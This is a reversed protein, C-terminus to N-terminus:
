YRVTTMGFYGESTGTSFAAIAGGIGSPLYILGAQLYYLHYIEICQAALSMQLVMKVTYTVSGILIVTLNGKKFLMPIGKLPNPFYCNRRKAVNDDRDAGQKDTKRRDSTFKDFLSKHIGRSPISGNGVVKRQTEPLLLVVVILYTGTLIVLFWFIWRWGLKQALVGALVPGFSPAAGTSAYRINAKQVSETLDLTASVLFDVVRCLVRTRRCDYYGGGGWVCRWLFRCGGTLSSWRGEEFVSGPSLMIVLLGPM